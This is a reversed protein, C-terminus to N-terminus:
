VPASADVAEAPLAREFAAALLRISLGTAVLIWGALELGEELVIEVTWAFSAKDVDAFDLVIGAMNLAIAAILLGLGLRVLRFAEPTARGLRVLLVMLAAVLPFYLAPWIVQAYSSSLGLAEAIELGLDEHIIVADDFSLYAAAVAAGTASARRRPDVFGLLFAAMAVAFTACSSAWTVLGGEDLDFLAISRDFAYIDVLYVLTQLAVAACALVTGTAAIRRAILPFTAELILAAPEHDHRRAASASHPDLSSAQVGV